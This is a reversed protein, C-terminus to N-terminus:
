AKEQLLQRYLKPTIGAIKKFTLNFHTPSNFGCLLAIKSLSLNTTEIYEKAADIRINNILQNASLGQASQLIRNLQRSSILLHNAVDNVTIPFAVNDHIYQTAAQIRADNHGVQPLAGAHNTKLLDKLVPIGKFIDYLIVSLLTNFIYQDESADEPLTHFIYHISNYIDPSCEIELYPTGSANWTTLPAPAVFSFGLTLSAYQESRVHRHTRNPPLLLAKPSACRVIEDGVQYEAYGAIPIHLEYFSHRHVPYSRFAIDPTMIRSFYLSCEFADNKIHPKLSNFKQTTKYLDLNGFTQLPM